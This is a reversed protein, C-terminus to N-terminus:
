ACAPVVDTQTAAHAYILLVVADLVFCAAIMSQIQRRQRARRALREATLRPRGSESAGVIPGPLSSAASGM